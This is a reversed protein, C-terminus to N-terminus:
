PRRTTEELERAWPPNAGARRVSAAAAAVARELGARLDEEPLTEIRRRDLAELDQLAALFGANFTDRAGTTDVVDVSRAPVELRGRRRLAMAGAAGRTLLVLTPGRDLYDAAQATTDGPGHLCDLDEESLKLVDARAIMRGLRARYADTVLGPRINPALMMLRGGSRAAMAEHASGCPEPILSIGGLLLAEVGAPLPPVEAPGVMRAATNEDHFAYRAQGKALTVFALTTPRDSTPCLSLDVGAQTLPARLADGFM